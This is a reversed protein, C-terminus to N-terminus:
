GHGHAEQHQRFAADAAKKQADSLAGYLTQFADTLKQVDQAHLQTLTAYSQMSELANMSQAKTSREQLAQDFAHANDRMLQAFQDWQGQQEPTIGLEKRLETIRDEVRASASQM